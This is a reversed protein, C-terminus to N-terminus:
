KKWEIRELEDLYRWEMYYPHFFDGTGKIMMEAPSYQIKHKSPIGSLIVINKSSAKEKPLICYIETSRFPYSVLKLGLRELESLTLYLTKPLRPIFQQLEMDHTLRFGKMKKVSSYDVKRGHTQFLLQNFETKTKPNYVMKTSYIRIKNRKLVYRVIDIIDKM